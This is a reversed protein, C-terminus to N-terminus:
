LDANFLNFLNSIRLNGSNSVMRNSSDGSTDCRFPGSAFRRSKLVLHFIKLYSRIL